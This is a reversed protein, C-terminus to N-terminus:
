KDMSEDATEEGTELIIEFCMYIIGVVTMGIGVRVFHLRKIIEPVVVIHFYDLIILLIGVLILLIGLIDMLQTGVSFRRQSIKDTLPHGHAYILRIYLDGYILAALLILILWGLDWRNFIGLWPWRGTLIQVTWLGAGVACGATVSPSGCLVAIILAAQPVDMGLADISYFAVGLTLAAFEIHFEKARKLVSEALVAVPLIWFKWSSVYAADPSLSKFLLTFLVASVVLICISLGNYDSEYDKERQKREQRTLERHANEYFASEQQIEPEEPNIYTETELDEFEQADRCEADSDGPVPMGLAQLVERVSQYRDEVHYSCMKRLIKAMAESANAPAPFVFEPSYQVLNAYYGDSGPFKLQNLLLYLTIGLSYIDAAANYSDTLRREIEPAGYGDTFVITEASGEEVQKAIGFDGLKYLGLSEDWFINELKIDRHLINHKHATLVAQGVQMAFETVEEEDRLRDGVLVANGYRDRSLIRELKEMLIIQILIGEQEWQDSDPYLVEQITGAENMKIKMSWLDLIRVINESQGGLFYQLQTTRSVMQADMTKDGLGIVKAAYHLSPNDEDYMEYVFSFGGTGLLVPKHAERCFKYRPRLYGDEELELLLRGIEDRDLGM